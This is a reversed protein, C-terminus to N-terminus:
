LLFSLLETYTKWELWGGSVTLLLTCYRYYLWHAQGPRFGISLILIEVRLTVEINGAKVLFIAMKAVMKSKLVGM